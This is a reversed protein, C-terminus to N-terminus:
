RCKAGRNRRTAITTSAGLLGARAQEDKLV